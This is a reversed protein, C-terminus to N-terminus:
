DKEDSRNGEAFLDILTLHRTEGSSAPVPVTYIYIYIHILDKVQYSIHQLLCKRRVVTGKEVTGTGADEPSVLCKVKISKNASPFLDSSFSLLLM